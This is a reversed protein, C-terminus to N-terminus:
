YTYTIAAVATFADRRKVLPSRAANDVYRMSSAQLSTSWHTDIHHEWTAGLSGAYLGGTARFTQFGTRAAQESTVGFYSQNYRSDGWHADLDMVVKEQGANLVEFEMGARFRNRQAGDRLAFEAEASASVGHGFDQVLLTRTTFSGRVDGMGALKRSGPRWVSDRELRGLDYYMSQSGYLGWSTQFQVGAGRSTDLFLVGRQVSLVPVAQLRGDKSGAYRPAYLAGVGVSMDTKDGLLSDDAALAAGAYATLPVLVTCLRGLRNKKLPFSSHM